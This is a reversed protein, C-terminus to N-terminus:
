VWGTGFPTVLKERRSVLLTSSRENYDCRVQNSGEIYTVLKTM